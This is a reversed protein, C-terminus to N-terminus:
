WVSVTESSGVTWPTLGKSIAIAMYATAEAMHSNDDDMPEAKGPKFTLNRLSRIVRKCTPDVQLRRQGDASLIWMRLANITDRQRWPAKPAHIVFNGVDKLIKHDSLGLSSTQLRKGTPDPCCHIARNPYRDRITLAMERSDSEMLVVEDIVALTNGQMQAVCACFPTRNFDMGIILPSVGDDVVSKINGSGFSPYVAGVLSEITAHFEQRWLELAMTAKAQEVFKDDIWGGQTSSYSWRGWEPTGEAREWLDHSYNGGGAPTSALLLQGKEATGLMPWVAGELAEQLRDQQAYAFEDGLVLDASQGRLADAQDWGGLTIRSGNIFEITLTSEMVRHAWAPPVSEKLTRWSIDKAMKRSPAIFFVVAGPQELCRALGTLLLLRTKGFRRGCFLIGVTLDQMERFIQAAAPKLQQTAVAM